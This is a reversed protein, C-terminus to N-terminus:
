NIAVSIHPHLKCKGNGTQHLNVAVGGVDISIGMAGLANDVSNGQNVKLGSSIASPTELSKMSGDSCKIHSGEGLVVRINDSSSGSIALNVEADLKSLEILGPGPKITAKKGNGIEVSALEVYIKAGTLTACGCAAATDYSVEDDDDSDTTTTNNTTTTTTTTDDDDDDSVVVYDKDEDDEDKKDDSPPMVNPAPTAGAQPPPTISEDDGDVQDDVQQPLEPQSFEDLVVDQQGSAGKLLAEDTMAFDVQSCNQFFVLFGALGVLISAAKPNMKRKM